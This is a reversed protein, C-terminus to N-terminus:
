WLATGVFTDEDIKGVHRGVDEVPLGAITSVYYWAQGTRLIVKTAGLPKAKEVVTAV